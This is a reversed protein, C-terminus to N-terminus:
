GKVVRFGERMAAESLRDDLCVFELSAPELEAAVIAAALQISDASHLPHTRLLRQAINRVPDTALVEQWATALGRLRAIAATADELTLLTERERRAIASVCEVPTGWWVIMVSDQELLQLVAARSPEGVLLPVIASADWFRV